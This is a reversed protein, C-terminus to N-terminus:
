FLTDCHGSSFHSACHVMQSQYDSSEAELCPSKITSLWKQLVDTSYIMDYVAHPYHKQIQILALLTTLIGPLDIQAQM